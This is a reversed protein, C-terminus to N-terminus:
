PAAETRVFQVRRNLARNQDTTNPVVPMEAGYGHSVLRSSDIGKSVLYKKVSAARRDSLKKNYDAGGKNDTHGQVDIKINPNTKLSYCILPDAPAFANQLEGLHHLLTARSYAFLPTGYAAALEAVPVDECHLARDRYRFFDM